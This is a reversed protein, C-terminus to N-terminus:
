NAALLKTVLNRKKLEFLTFVVLQLTKTELFKGRNIIDYYEIDKVEEFSVIGKDNLHLRLRLVTQWAWHMYGPEKQAAEAVLLAIEVHMKYPLFLKGPSVLDWNLRSIIMRALRSPDASVPNDLLLGSIIKIDENQPIWVSLPLEEYLYLAYSSIKSINEKVLFLIRSM